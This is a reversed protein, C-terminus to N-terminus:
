DGEVDIAGATIDVANVCYRLSDGGNALRGSGVDAVHGRAGSVPEGRLGVGGGGADARDADGCFLIIVPGGEFGFADGVADICRGVCGVLAGVGRGVFAAGFDDGPKVIEM